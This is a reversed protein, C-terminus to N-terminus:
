KIPELIGKTVQQRRQNTYNAHGLGYRVIYKWDIPVGADTRKVAAAVAVLAMLILFIVNWRSDNVVPVESFSWTLSPYYYYYNYYYYYKCDKYPEKNEFSSLASQTNNGGPLGTSDMVEVIFMFPHLLIESNTSMRLLKLISTLLKEEIWFSHKSGCLSDYFALLLDEVMSHIRGNDHCTLNRIFVCTETLAFFNRNTATETHLLFRFNRFSISSSGTRLTWSILGARYLCTTSM